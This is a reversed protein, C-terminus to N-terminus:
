SASRKARISALLIGLQLVLVAPWMLPCVVTDYLRFDRDSLQYGTACLWGAFYTELMM